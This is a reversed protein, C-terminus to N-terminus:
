MQITAVSGSLLNSAASLSRRRKSVLDPQKRVSIRQDCVNGEGTQPITAPTPSVSILCAIHFAAVVHMVRRANRPVTVSAAAPAIMKAGAASAAFGGALGEPRLM